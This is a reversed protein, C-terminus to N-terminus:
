AHCAAKECGLTDFCDMAEGAMCSCIHRPVQHGCCTESGYFCALPQEGCQISKGLPEVSPCESTIEVLRRTSNTYSTYNTYNTVIQTSNMNMVLLPSTSNKIVLEVMSPSTENVFSSTTNSIITTSNSLGCDCTALECTYEGGATCSCRFSATLLGVTTNRTM